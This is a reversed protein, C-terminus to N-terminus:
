LETADSKKSRSAASTRYISHSNQRNTNTQRDYIPTKDFRSVNDSCIQYHFALPSGFVWATLVIHSKHECFDSCRSFLVCESSTMGVANRAKVKVKSRQGQGKVKVNLELLAIIM